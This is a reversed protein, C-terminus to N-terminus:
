NIKYLFTDEYNGVLTSIGRVYEVLEIRRNEKTCRDVVVHTVGKEKLYSNFVDISYISPERMAWSMNHWETYLIKGDYEAGFPCGLMLTVPISKSSSNLISSIYQSDNKVNGMYNISPLNHKYEIVLRNKLSIYILGNFIRTTPIAYFNAFLLIAFIPAWWNSSNIFKNNQFVYSLSIVILLIGPFFYRLYQIQFGVACLYFIGLVLPILCYSIKRTSFYLGLTAISFFMVGLGASGDVTQSFQQTHYTLDWPLTFAFKGTWNRDLFNEAIFFSSKFLGNFYPFVPNGTKFWAVIYFFAGLSSAFSFIMLERLRSLGIWKEQRFYIILFILFIPGLVIAFFKSAMAAGACLCAASLILLSKQKYASMLLSGFAVVFGCTTIDVYLGGVGQMFIPMSAIVASFGIGVISAVGIGGVSILALIMLFQIVLDVKVAEIGGVSYMAAFNFAPGNSMVAFVYDRVNYTWMAFYQMEKAIRMHAIQADGDMWPNVVSFILVLISVLCLSLIIKNSLSQKNSALHIEDILNKSESILSRIGFPSIVLFILLIYGQTFRTNIPFFSILCLILVFFSKGIWYTLALKSLPSSGLKDIIRGGMLQFGIVISGISTAFGWVAAEPGATMILALLIPLMLYTLNKINIFVIGIIFFFILYQLMNLREGDNQWLPAIATKPPGLWFNIVLFLLSIFLLVLFIKSKKQVSLNIM